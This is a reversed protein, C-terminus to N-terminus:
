SSFSKLFDELIISAAVADIKTLDVQFNYRPDNKMREQAEYSSLTEDQFYIDLDSQEKLKKLKELKEGFAKITKTMTSETGDTFYPIGLVLIDIFEEEIVQHIEDILQEDSQYQIRGYTLVFPDSNVKYNALGTFKQGYDIALIHKGILSAPLNNYTM